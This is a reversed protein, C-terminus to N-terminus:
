DQRYALLEAVLRMRKGGGAYEMNADFPLDQDGRDEVEQARTHFPAFAGSQYGEVDIILNHLIIAVTIWQLAKKRDENSKINIRVHKCIVLTASPL